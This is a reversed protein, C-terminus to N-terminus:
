YVYVFENANFLLLCVDALARTEADVSWPKPGADYHEFTPLHEDYEFPKGSLEEVLSRVISTPYEMPEVQTRAHYDRMDALYATLRGTEQPTAARGFTLRFARDIRAADTDAEERVRLALAVAHDASVDGNFLTFAQPPPAAQERLACSDNPNPSGFVNLFPDAQGRVRYAYISRRNREAPTPAPQYAPAISFQIMRPQLAVEMNIEPRAPLGGVQPNLEGSAVLMADRLEEATLRRPPFRALLRNAPDIEDLRERQPHTGSQRYTESMMLLKHLPKPRRGHALFESALWDLLEPHTPNDGKVGFNNATGVIGKGFHNQWVRNVISRGALPNDEHVIWEALALRRAALDDPLAYPDDPSAAGTTLGTASLVGPTVAAGPSLYSGGTHIRTEPRWDPDIKGPARLKKADVWGAPPGDYVGHALPEFRELRRTWIRVDQERVKLVGQDAETLGHDRPPKREEPDDNRAANDKYPLGHEEYWARAAAERKAVLGDVGDQAFRLMEEVRAKEEAFGTRNEVPTFDVPMEAPQTGAFAAYIRYYDRTPVPDFKHDHCKSCRLPMSLFTQGVGHVVDDLFMARAEEKPVMATGWPGMRLFATGLKAEADDSADGALQAKVFEDYPMDANLARIVWDRYRWAASREYDNSFGGTDAYRSVDLWHQAWREGYHDSALLRDILGEWAAEADEEYAALFDDIEFPTPPLGTLDFTARRILTRPDAPPAPAIGKEALKRRVFADVPHAAGDPVDPRVVPRFAWVDEPRYRRYTWDDALGGSTPVIVGDATVPKQREAARIEAQREESPWPAGAAIWQKVLACQEPTLRDNEKPPMEYGDWMVAHYLPSDEPKGPVLAPEESEGGQLLGDRSRVDFDGKLDAADNGHCGLCKARLLPQIKLAFLEEATPEQAAAFGVLLLTCFAGLRAAARRIESNRVDM